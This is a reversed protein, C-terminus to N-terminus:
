PLGAMTSLNEQLRDIVDSVMIEAILNAGASDVQGGDRIAEIIGTRTAEAIRWVASHSSEWGAPTPPRSEFWDLAADIHDLVHDQHDPLVARMIADAIAYPMADLAAQGHGRTAADIVEPVLAGNRRLSWLAIMTADRDDILERRVLAPHREVIPPKGRAARLRNVRALAAVEGPDNDPPRSPHNNM